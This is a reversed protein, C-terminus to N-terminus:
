VHSAHSLTRPLFHPGGCPRLYAREILAAWKAAFAPDRKRLRYASQRSMGAAFAAARVNPSRALRDLFAHKREPTWCKQWGHPSTGDPQSHDM